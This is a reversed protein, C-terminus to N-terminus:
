LTSVVNGEDRIVMMDIYMAQCMSGIRRLADDDLPRRAREAQDLRTFELQLTRLAYPKLIENFLKCTTRLKLLNNKGTYLAM